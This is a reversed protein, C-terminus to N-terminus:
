NKTMNFFSSIRRKRCILKERQSLFAFFAFFHEAKPKQIIIAKAIYFGMVQTQQTDLSIKKPDDVDELCKM